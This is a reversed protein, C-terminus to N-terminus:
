LLNRRVYKGANEFFLLGDPRIGTGTRAWRPHNLADYFREPHPMLGLVRGTSDCIGAVSGESGNPNGPYGTENGGSDVYQLVIRGEERLRKLVPEGTVVFKGEAHAVPLQIVEEQVLFESKTSRIKLFVWRAEFRRSDNETLSFAPETGDSSASLLGTRVLTQFGNCIGLVLKGDAVFKRLADGLRARIEGSLVRGAGLDDGYSFGGPFVILHYKELPDKGGVLRNVHAIETSFGVKECAFRTERECNTGAVRIILARPKTM